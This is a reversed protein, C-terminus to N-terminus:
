LHSVVAADWGGGVFDYLGTCAANAHDTIHLRGGSLQWALWTDITGFCLEGDAGRRQGDRQQLLWELKTASALPNPYVGEAHLARAAEPTRTGQWSIPPYGPLGSRREWVVATARQNAIGIAALDGAQLRAARLADGIVRRTAEWIHLPDQEMWGPRPFAAAIE